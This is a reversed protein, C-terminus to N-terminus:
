RGANRSWPLGTRRRKPAPTRATTRAPPRPAAAPGTQAARLTQRGGPLLAPPGGRPPGPRPATEPGDARPAWGPPRGGRPPGPQPRPQPATHARHEARRGAANVLIIVPQPGTEPVADVGPSEAGPDVPLRRHLKQQQHGFPKFALRQFRQGRG